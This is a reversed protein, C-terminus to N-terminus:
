QPKVRYEVQVGPYMIYIPAKFDRWESWETVTGPLTGVPVKRTRVQYEELKRVHKLHGELWKIITDVDKCDKDLSDNFDPPTSIPAEVREEPKRRGEYIPDMRFQVIDSDIGVPGIYQEWPGWDEPDPMTIDRNIRMQIPIGLGQAYNLEVCKVESPSGTPKPRLQLHEAGWNPESNFTWDVWPSSWIPNSSLPNGLRTRYQVTEGRLYAMKAKDHPHPNQKVRYLYEGSNWDPQPCDEWFREDSNIRKRQLVEKRFHAAKEVAWIVLIPKFPFHDLINKRVFLVEVM